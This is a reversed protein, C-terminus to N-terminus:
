PAGRNVAPLAILGAAIVRGAQILMHLDPPSADEVGSGVILGIAKKELVAKYWDVPAGILSEFFVSQVSGEADRRVVRLQSPWAMAGWGTPATRLLFDGSQEPGRALGLGELTDLTKAAREPDPDQLDFIVMPFMGLAPTVGPSLVPTLRPEVHIPMLSGPEAVEGRRRAPKALGIRLLSALSRSAAAVPNPKEIERKLKVRTGAIQGNRALTNLRRADVVGEMAAEFYGILVTIEGCGAALALWAPEGPLGDIIVRGQDDVVRGSGSEPDYYAVCRDTLEPERGITRLLEWGEGMLAGIAPQLGDGSELIFRPAGELQLLLIPREGRSSPLVIGWFNADDSPESASARGSYIVRSAGCSAHMVRVADQDLHRVLGVVADDGSATSVTVLCVVCPALLDESRLRAVVREGLIGAVEESVHVTM